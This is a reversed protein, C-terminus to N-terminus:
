LPVNMQNLATESLNAQFLVFPLPPATPSLFWASCNLRPLVASPQSTAPVRWGAGVLAASCLENGVLLWPRAQFISDKWVGKSTLFGQEPSIPDRLCQNWELSPSRNFKGILHGFIWSSLSVLDRRRGRGLWAAAKCSLTIVKYTDEWWLNTCM